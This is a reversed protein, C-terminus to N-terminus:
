SVSGGSSFTQPEKPSVYDERCVTKIGRSQYLGRCITKDTEM